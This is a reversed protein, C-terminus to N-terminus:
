ASCRGKRGWGGGTRRCVEVSEATEDGEEDEDSV